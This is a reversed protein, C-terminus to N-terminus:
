KAAALEANFDVGHFKLDYYHKLVDDGVARLMQQDRERDLSSLQQARAPVLLSFLFLTTGFASIFSRSFSM